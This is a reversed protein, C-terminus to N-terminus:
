PPPSAAPQAAPEPLPAHSRSASLMWLGLAFTAICAWQAPTLGGYRPDSEPGLDTARLFDLPFRIMPYVVALAGTVMGPRRTRRAVIVVLAIAETPQAASATGHSCPGSSSPAKLSSAILARTLASSAATGM